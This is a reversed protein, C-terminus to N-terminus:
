LDNFVSLIYNKVCIAFFLVNNASQLLSTGRHSKTVFETRKASHFTGQSTQATRHGLLFQSRGHLAFYPAPQALRVERLDLAARPRVQRVARPREQRPEEAYIGTKQNVIWFAVRGLQLRSKAGDVCLYIGPQIGTHFLKGGIRIKTTGEQGDRLMFIRTLRKQEKRLNKARRAQRFLEPFNQM